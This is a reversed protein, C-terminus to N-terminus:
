VRTVTTSAAVDVLTQSIGGATRSNATVVLPAGVQLGHIKHIEDVLVIEADIKAGIAVLDAPLVGGYASLAAAAAAQSQAVTLPVPLAAIATQTADHEAQSATALAIATAEKALLTSAEIQSLTPKSDVKNSIAAFDAALLAQVAAAIAAPSDSTLFSVSGNVGDVPVGESSQAFAQVQAGIDGVSRRRLRWGRTLFLFDGSGSNFQAIDDGGTALWSMGDSTTLGQETEDFIAQLSAAGNGIDIFANAGFSVDVLSSTTGAYMPSGDPLLKQASSPSKATLGVPNFTGMSHEYGRRKTVWTWTGTAGPAINLTYSTGSSAVYSVQAGASDAVYVATGATLGTLSLQASTGASSTYITNITGNNTVTSSTAITKFKTGASLTVGTNVVISMATSLASGSATAPYASLSPFQALAVSSCGWAILYDYVEDLTANGTVTLTGNSTSVASFKSSLALAASKSLTVAADALQNRSGHYAVNDTFLGGELQYSTAGFSGSLPNYGYAKLGFSWPGYTTTKNIGNWIEHLLVPSWSGSVSATSAAIGINNLVVGVTEAVLNSYTDNFYINQNAAAHNAGSGSIARKDYSLVNIFNITQAVALSSRWLAPVDTSGSPKGDFNVILRTGAPASINYTGATDSGFVAFPSAAFAPMKFSGGVISGNGWRVLIGGGIVTCNVLMQRTPNTWNGGAGPSIFERGNVVNMWLQLNPSTGGYGGNWAGGTGDISGGFMCWIAAANTTVVGYSSAGNFFLSCSKGTRREAYSQLQGLVALGGAAQIALTTGAVSSNIVKAEDYFCLSQSQGATGLILSDTLTVTSGSVALGAAVSEAFNKSVLVTDGVVQTVELGTAPDIFPTNLELSSTSVWKRAYAFGKFTTGASNWLGVIRQITFDALVFPATSVALSQTGVASLAAVAYKGGTVNVPM